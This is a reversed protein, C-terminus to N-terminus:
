SLNYKRIKNRAYYEREREKEKERRDRTKRKGAKKTAHM